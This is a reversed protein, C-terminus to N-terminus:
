KQIKVALDREKMQVEFMTPVGKECGGDLRLSGLGRQPTKSWTTLVAGVLEDMWKKGEGKDLPMVTRSELGTIILKDKRKINILHAM